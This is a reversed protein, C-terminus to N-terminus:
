NSPRPLFLSQPLNLGHLKRGCLQLRVNACIGDTRYRGFIKSETEAKYVDSGPGYVHSPFSKFLMDVKTSNTTEIKAVALVTPKPTM